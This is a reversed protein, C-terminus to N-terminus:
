VDLEGINADEATKTTAAVGLINNADKSLAM